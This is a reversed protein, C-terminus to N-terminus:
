KTVGTPLLQITLHLLKEPKHLKDAMVTVRRVRGDVPAGVWIARGYKPKEVRKVNSYGPLVAQVADFFDKASDANTAKLTLNCQPAYANKAKFPGTIILSGSFEVYPRNNLKEADEGLWISSIGYGSFNQSISVESLHFSGVLPKPASFDSLRRATPRFEPAAVEMAAYYSAADFPKALCAKQFLAAVDSGSIARAQFTDLPDNIPQAGYYPMLGVYGPGGYDDSLLIYDPKQITQTPAAAPRVAISLLCAGLLIKRNM